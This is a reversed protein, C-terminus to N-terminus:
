FLVGQQNAILWNEASSTMMSSLLSIDLSSGSPSVSSAGLYTSTQPAHKEAITERMSVFSSLPHLKYDPSIQPSTEGPPEPSSERSFSTRWSSGAFLQSKQMVKEVATVVKALSPIRLTMAQLYGINSEILKITAGVKEETV